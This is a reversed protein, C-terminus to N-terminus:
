TESMVYSYHQHLVEYCSALKIYNLSKAPINKEGTFYQPRGNCELHFVVYFSGKFNTLIKKEPKYKDLIFIKVCAYFYYM